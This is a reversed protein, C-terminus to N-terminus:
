PRVFRRARAWARSLLLGAVWWAPTGPVAACGQPMEPEPPGADTATMAGADVEPGPVGADVDRGADPETGADVPALEAAVWPVVDLLGADAADVIVQKVWERFPGVQTYTMQQCVTPNGRSMVGIVQGSADDIAPGGSDGGCPGLGAVWDNATQIVRGAANRGLGVSAVPLGARARRVGVSSSDAGDSGYGVATFTEGVVPAAVRVALPQAGELPAQLEILAVDTGCNPAGASEPPVHVARANPAPPGSASFVDAIATVGFHSAPVPALARTATYTTGNVTEDACLAASQNMGSVCHRATMVVNPAVLFGTCFGVGTPLEPSIVIAVAQGAGADPSGGLVAARQTQPADLELAPGCSLVLLCSTVLRWSGTPIHM